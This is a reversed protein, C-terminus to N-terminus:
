EVTPPLLKQCSQAGLDVRPQRGDPTCRQFDESPLYWGCGPSWRGAFLAASFAGVILWARGPGAWGLRVDSWRGWVLGPLNSWVFSGTHTPLHCTEKFLSTVPSQVRKNIAANIQPLISKTFALLSLWGLSCLKHPLWPQTAGCAVSSPSSSHVPTSNDERALM